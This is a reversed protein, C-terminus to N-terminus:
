SPRPPMTPPCSPRSCSSPSPSTPLAWEALNCIRPGLGRPHLALRYANIPPTLLEPAVDDTFAQFAPNAAVLEGCNVIIAPFPLHGDLIHQLAALVPLLAPDQLNSEPYAPAYDFALLLDNRERLPLELSEALRIVLGRGPTSRGSEIFSLHRQTTGARQALELQSLKRRARVRRLAHGCHGHNM